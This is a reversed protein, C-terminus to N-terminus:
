KERTFVREGQPRKLTMQGQEVNFEMTVGNTIQFITESKAETPAPKSASAPQVYLTSGQHTITFRAPPNVYVGVYKALTEPSVEVKEFGPIEFPRHYYIAAIGKMIESVSYVKANTVYAIALKEEPLYAVWAGTAADGGNEGYFTRGEWTFTVMGMGEGERPTKMTQLSEPSILKGDFLAKIFKAM